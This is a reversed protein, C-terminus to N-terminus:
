SSSLHSGPKRTQGSNTFHIWANKPFRKRESKPTRCAMAKSPKVINYVSSWLDDINGTYGAQQLISLVANGIQSNSLWGMGFTEVLSKTPIGNKRCFVKVDESTISGKGLSRQLCLCLIQVVTDQPSRAPEYSVAGCFDRRRPPPIARLLFPRGKISPRSKSKHLKKRKKKAMANCGVFLVSFRDATTKTLLIDQEVVETAPAETVGCGGRRLGQRATEAL